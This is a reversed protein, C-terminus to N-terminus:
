FQLAVYNTAILGAEILLGEFSDVLGDLCHIIQRDGAPLSISNTLSHIQSEWDEPLKSCLATAREVLRKEGPHPLSNIAFVIDFYSGLFSATRHIISVSDRRLVASELQHRFSFIPHRLIPYNKAIIARLQQFSGDRDYM